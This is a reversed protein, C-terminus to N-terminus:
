LAVSKLFTEKTIRKSRGKSIIDSLANKTGSDLEQKHFARQSIVPFFLPSNM